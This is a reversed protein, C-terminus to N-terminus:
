NSWSGYYEYAGDERKVVYRSHETEDKHRNEVKITNAYVLRVTSEVPEGQWVKLYYGDSDKELTTYLDHENLLRMKEDLFEKNTM